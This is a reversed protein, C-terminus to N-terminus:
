CLIQRATEVEPWNEPEPFRAMVAHLASLADPGALEAATLAARLEFMTAGQKRSSEALSAVIPDFISICREPHCARPALARVEAAYEQAEQFEGLHHCAIQAHMNANVLLVDNNTARAISALRTGAEKAALCEGRVMCVIWTAGFAAAAATRDGLEEALEVVRQTLQAVEASAYGQLTALPLLRAFTLDLERQSLDRREASGISQLCHLGRSALESSQAFAFLRLANRATVLFYYSAQWFERGTEFLVALQAAITDTV